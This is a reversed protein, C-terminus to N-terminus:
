LANFIHGSDDECHDAAQSANTDVSPDPQWAHSMVKADAWSKGNFKELVNCIEPGTIAGFCRSPYLAWDSLQM